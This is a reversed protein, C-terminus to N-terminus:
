KKNKAIQFMIWEMGEKIGEGSIANSAQIHWNRHPFSQLGLIQSIKVSPLADKLDMKNAFFLIPIDPRRFNANPLLSTQMTNTLSTNSNSSRM